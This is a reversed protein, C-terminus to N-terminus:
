IWVGPQPKQCRKAFALAQGAPKSQAHHELLTRERGCARRSPAIRLM